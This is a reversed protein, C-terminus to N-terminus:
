LNFGLASEKGAKLEKVHEYYSTMDILSRGENRIKALIASEMSVIAEAKPLWEELEAMSAVVVGDDDGFVVDGHQVVACGMKVDQQTKGLKQATGANPHFGRSYIPISFTRTMPTDRCNGDIVVGALGKREAEAALLEGFMGGNLPWSRKDEEERFGADIMLVDAAAAAELAVLNTLFDGPVLEVTYARGVMQYGSNLPRVTEVVRAAKGSGDCLACADVRLLRARLEAWTGLSAPPPPQTSRLVASTAIARRSAMRGVISLTAACSGAVVLRNRMM